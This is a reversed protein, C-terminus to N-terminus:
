LSCTRDMSFVCRKDMVVPASDGGDEAEEAMRLLCSALTARPQLANGVGGGEVYVEVVRTGGREGEGEREGEREGPVLLAGSESVLAAVDHQLLAAVDDCNSGGKGGASLSVPNVERVEIREAVLSAGKGRKSPSNTPRKQQQTPSNTAREKEDHRDAGAGERVRGNKAESHTPM